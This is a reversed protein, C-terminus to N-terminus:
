DNYVTIIKAYTRINQAFTYMKIPIEANEASKKM